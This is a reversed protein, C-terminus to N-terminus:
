EELRGLPFFTEKSWVGYLDRENIKEEVGIAVLEYYVAREIRAELGDRVRIYPTPEGTEPDHSVRLPHAEDVTVMEDVNTRFSLVQDRGGSHVYMEVALFPVDEVTIRGREAPTSLWYAGDADRELVSAFLCVLEKRHIPSGQYFWTGNRDIRIDLDGCDIPSRAGRRKRGPLDPPTTENAERRSSNSMNAFM